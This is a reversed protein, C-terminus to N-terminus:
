WYKWFINLIQGSIENGWEWEPGAILIFWVFGLDSKLIGELPGWPGYSAVSNRM